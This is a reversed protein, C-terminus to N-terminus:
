GGAQWEKKKWTLHPEPLAREEVGARLRAQLLDLHFLSSRDAQGAEADKSPQATVRGAFEIPDIRGDPWTPLSMLPREQRQATQEALCWSRWILFDALNNEAAPQPFQRGRTWALALEALARRPQERERSEFMKGARRALSATLRESASMRAVGELVREIEIPPGQNELVVAFLELLEGM